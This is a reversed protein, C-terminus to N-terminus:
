DERKFYGEIVSRRVKDDFSLWQALTYNTIIWEYLDYYEEDIWRAFGIPDLFMTEVKKQGMRMLFKKTLYHPSKIKMITEGDWADRIMLGEHEVTAVYEEAEFFTGETWEPRLAGVDEALDDLQGEVAMAGDGLRRCGILYAGEEEEVIHPDSKDCIEFIYTFGPVFAEAKLGDIHKRALEVFDSDLSGTTSILLEDHYITVSAMFGNVKRVIDVLRDPDCVTGNENHNFVKTFPWSIINDDADLVIGRAELLLPDTHWLNDYFVKRAYKLVRLGNPYVKEKVLGKAILHSFDIKM